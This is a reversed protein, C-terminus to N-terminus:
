PAPSLLFASVRRLLSRPVLRQLLLVFRNGAGDVHVVRGADFAKLCRRVCADAPQFKMLKQFRYPPGAKEHFESETVGPCLAHVRVGFPRMEEALAETFSLVFAKTAGYMGVHPCPQFGAVSAVNIIGGRRARKMWGGVERTLQALARINLAVMADLNRADEEVILGHYGFGANNVLLRPLCRRTRLAACVLDPGDTAALDAVIIGTRVGHAAEVERALTRLRDERRATLVLNWGRAALQRAFEAGIGSSAGTVVAWRGGRWSDDATM